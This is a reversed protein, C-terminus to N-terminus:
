NLERNGGDDAVRNALLIFMLAVIPMLTNTEELHAFVFTIVFVFAAFVAIAYNTSSLKKFSSVLFVFFIVMLLFIGGSQVWYYGDILINGVHFFGIVEKVITKINPYIMVWQGLVTSTDHPVESVTALESRLVNVLIITVFTLLGLLYNIGCLFVGKIDQRRIREANLLIFTFIPAYILEEFTILWIVSLMISFYVKTVKKLGSFIIIFFTILFIENYLDFSVLWYGSDVVFTNVISFLLSITLSIYTKLKACFFSYLFILVPLAIFCMKHNIVTAYYMSTHLSKRILFEILSPFIRQQFARINVVGNIIDSDKQAFLGYHDGLRLMNFQYSVLGILAAVLIPFIVKIYKIYLLKYRMM